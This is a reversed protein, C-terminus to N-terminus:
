VHARGIQTKGIRTKGQLLLGRPGPLWALVRPLASRAGEPLRDSETDPLLPPSSSRCLRVWAVERRERHEAELAARLEDETFGNKRNREIMAQLQPDM